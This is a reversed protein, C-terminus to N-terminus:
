QALSRCKEHNEPTGSFNKQSYLCQVLYQASIPGLCHLLIETFVKIASFCCINLGAFRERDITPTLLCNLSCKAVPQYHYAIYTHIYTHIYTQIYKVVSIPLVCPTPLKHSPQDRYYLYLPPYILIDGQTYNSTRGM